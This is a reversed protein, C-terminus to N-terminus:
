QSDSLHLTAAATGMLGLREADPGRTDVEATVSLGARLWPNRAVDAPDIAIKVPVRQVVKTFNGTANQPPLLSFLAGTAPAISAVHGDVEAGTDIDAILRVKLGPKILRLQTEKFNATVYLKGALPAVAILNQGPVVHQGLQAARNGVIGDFPARIVAYSLNNEALKENAEASQLKAEAQVAQAEAVQLSDQASAKQARAADLAAEAKRANAVSLDNAQRSTWGAGALSASRRADASARVQEAEAQDIAAETQAIMSRAQTVQRRAMLLGARAEGVGAKAQALRATLDAPDLEILPEGATVRQNDGVLIRAVNGEVRPSLVAIDGQIYANDTSEIWRGETVWWNAALGIAIVAIIALPLRLKRMRRKPAAPPTDEPSPSMAPQPVSHQPLNTDPMPKEVVANMAAPEM